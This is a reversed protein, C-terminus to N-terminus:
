KELAAILNDKKKKSYGTLGKEKALTRLDAVKMASLDVLPEPTKEPAKPPEPIAQTAPSPEPHEPVPQSAKRFARVVRDWPHITQEPSHRVFKIIKQAVRLRM